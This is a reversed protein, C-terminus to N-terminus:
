KEVKALEDAKDKSSDFRYFDENKPLEMTFDYTNDVDFSVNSLQWELVHGGAKRDETLFHFHYGPVNIGNMYDPMRFGIITGKVNRFEFTPQTKIVEVLRPYPKTQRPYSRTKIYDFTGNVRLAYIINKTPLMDDLHKTMESYNMSTDVSYRKDSEFFTVSSFPTMMSDNVAYAVGDSRVQYINGDFEIMQGDLNNFTGIGFDGHKKLEGFTMVGDYFGDLLFNYTSTQFLKDKNTEQVAVNKKQDTCGTISIAAILILALICYSKKM